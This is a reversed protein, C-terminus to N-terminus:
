LDPEDAGRSIILSMSTMFNLNNKIHKERIICVSQGSFAKITNTRCEPYPDDVEDQSVSVNVSSTFSKASKEEIWVSWGSRYDEEEEGEERWLIQPVQQLYVDKLWLEAQM